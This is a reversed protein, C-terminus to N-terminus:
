HQADWKTWGSNLRWDMSTYAVPRLPAPLAEISLSTRVELLYNEGKGPFHNMPFEHEIMSGTHRLAQGLSTFSEVTSQGVTSVLYQSSLAHYSIKRVMAWEAVKEDWLLPRPRKLRVEILVHLPIGKGLAEEVRENLALDMDATLYLKGDRFEPKASQVEFAALVTLPALCALLVSTKKFCATIFAM